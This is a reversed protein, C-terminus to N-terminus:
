VVDEKSEFKQVPSRRVEIKSTYKMIDVNVLPWRGKENKKKMQRRRNM